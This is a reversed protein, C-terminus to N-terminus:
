IWVGTEEWIEKSSPEEWDLECCDEEILKDIEKKHAKYYGEVEEGDKCVAVEDFSDISALKYLSLYDRAWTVKYAITLEGYEFEGEVEQYQYFHCM